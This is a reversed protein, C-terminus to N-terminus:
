SGTSKFNNELFKRFGVADTIKISGKKSLNIRMSFTNTNRSYTFSKEINATGINQHQVNENCMKAIITKEADTVPLPSTDKSLDKLLARWPGFKAKLEALNNDIKVSTITLPKASFISVRVPHLQHQYNALVHYQLTSKDNMCYPMMDIKDADSLDVDEETETQKTTFTPGKEKILEASKSHIQYATRMQKLALHGTIGFSGFSLMKGITRVMKSSALQYAKFAVFVEPTAILAGLIGLALSIKIRKGRINFDNVQANIPGIKAQIADM